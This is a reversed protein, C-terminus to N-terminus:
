ILRLAEKLNRVKRVKGRLVAGSAPYDYARGNWVLTMKEDGKIATATHKEVEFIEGDEVTEVTAAIEVTWGKAEAERKFLLSKHVESGKAVIVMGARSRGMKVVNRPDLEPHCVPCDNPIAGDANGNEQGHGEDSHANEWEAYELCETCLEPGIVKKTIPRGCGDSCKGKLTGNANRKPAKAQEAAVKAQMEQHKVARQADQIPLLAALLEAKKGKSAGKVGAESGIKRLEVATKATLDTATLDIMTPGKTTARERPCTVLKSWDQLNEGM